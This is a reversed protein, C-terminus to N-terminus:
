GNMGTIFKKRYDPLPLREPNIKDDWKTDDLWIAQMAIKAQLHVPAILGLPDYIKLALSFLQRKTFADGKVLADQKITQPNFQFADEKPHWIIGLAKNPKHDFTKECALTSINQSFPIEGLSAQILEESNTIWKSLAFKAEELIHQTRIVRDKADEPSDAGGIWDDVYLKELIAETIRPFETEYQKLHKLM